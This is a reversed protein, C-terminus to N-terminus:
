RFLLTKISDKKLNLTNKSEECATEAMNRKVTVRGRVSKILVFADDVIEHMRLLECERGITDELRKFVVAGRLIVTSDRFYLM